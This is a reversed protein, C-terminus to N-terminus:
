RSLEHIAQLSLRWPRHARSQCNCLWKEFASQRYINQIILMHSACKTNHRDGYYCQYILSVLYAHSRRRSMSWVQRITGEKAELIALATYDIMTHPEAVGSSGWM